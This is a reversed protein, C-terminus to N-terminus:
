SHHPHTSLRVCTCACISHKNSLALFVLSRAHVRAYTGAVHARSFAHKDSMQIRPHADPRTRATHRRCHISPFRTIHVHGM